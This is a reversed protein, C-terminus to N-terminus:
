ASHKLVEVIDGDEDKELLVCKHVVLNDTIECIVSSTWNDPHGEWELIIDVSWSFSSHNYNADCYCGEEEEFSKGLAVLQTLCTRILVEEDM